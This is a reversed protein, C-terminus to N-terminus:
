YSATPTRRARPNPRAGGAPIRGTTGRRTNNTLSGIATLEEPFTDIWEPRDMKTAGVADAAGRTNILIDNLTWTKSGRRAPCRAAAVRRQRGGHFKGVYLVGDDLPNIGQRLSKRWPLRSM